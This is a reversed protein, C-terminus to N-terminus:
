LANKTSVFKSGSWKVGFCSQDMAGIYTLCFKDKGFGQEGVEWTGDPSIPM